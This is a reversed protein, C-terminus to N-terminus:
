ESVEAPVACGDQDVDLTQGIRCPVEVYVWRGLGAFHRRVDPHGADHESTHVHTVIDNDDVTAYYNTM